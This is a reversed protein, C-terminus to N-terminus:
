RTNISKGVTQAFPIGGLLEAPSEPLAKGDRRAVEPGSQAPAHDV